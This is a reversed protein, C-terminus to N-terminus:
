RQSLMFSIIIVSASHSAQVSGIGMSSNKLPLALSRLNRSVFVV